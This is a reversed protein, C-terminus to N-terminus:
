SSRSATWSELPLGGDFMRVEVRLGEDGVGGEARGAERGSGGILEVEVVM